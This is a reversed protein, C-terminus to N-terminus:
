RVVTVTIALITCLFFIIEKSNYDFLNKNMEYANVFAKATHPILYSYGRGYYIFDFNAVKFSYIDINESGKCITPQLPTIIFFCVICYLIRSRKNM